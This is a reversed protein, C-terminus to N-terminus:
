KGLAAKIQDFEGDHENLLDKILQENSKKLYEIRDELHKNKQKLLEVHNLGGKNEEIENEQEKIKQDFSEDTRRINAEIKM